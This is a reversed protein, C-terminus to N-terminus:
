RVIQFFGSVGAVVLAVAQPRAHMRRVAWCRDGARAETVRAAGTSYGVWGGSTKDLLM